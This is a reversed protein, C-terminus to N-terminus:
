GYIWGARCNDCSNCRLVAFHGASCLHLCVTGRYLLFLTVINKAIVLLLLIYTSSKALGMKLENHEKKQFSLYEGNYKNGLIVHLDKFM